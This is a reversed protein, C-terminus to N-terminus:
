ENPTGDSTYRTQLLHSRLLDKRDSSKRMAQVEQPIWRAGMVLLFLLPALVHPLPQGRWWALGILCLYSVIAGTIASGTLVLFILGLLPLIMGTEAPMLLLLAGISSGLGRGGRFGLFVPYNHGLVAAIGGAVAWWGDLGLAYVYAVGAAGKAIDLISVIAGATRNAARFVNAAGANRNGLSRIDQGTTWRTFLYAFPIAGTLYALTLAVAGRLYVM